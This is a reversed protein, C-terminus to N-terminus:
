PKSRVSIISLIRTVDLLTGAAQLSNHLTHKPVYLTTLFPLTRSRALLIMLM